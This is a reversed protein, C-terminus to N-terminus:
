KFILHGWLPFNNAGRPKHKCTLASCEHSHFGMYRLFYAKKLGLRKRLINKHTCKGVQPVAGYLASILKYMAQNNLLESLWPFPPISLPLHTKVAGKVVHEVWSGDSLSSYGRERRVCGNGGEQCLLVPFIAAAAKQRVLNVGTLLHQSDWGIVTLIKKLLNNKLCCM